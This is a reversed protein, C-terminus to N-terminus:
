SINGSQGFAATMIEHPDAEAPLWSVLRGKHMVGIRDSLALLEPLDSSILLVALGRSALERIIGHIENKAGVDVGQTPEDLILVKPHTVIWRSLSVKQQNGGSLSSALAQAANPRINLADIYEEAQRREIQPQLWGGPFLRQHSAMTVNQEVPLDLIVGHRVRDEPVYAIGQEIAAQPSNLVVEQGDLQMEGEDAPTIGFLTQGLETRGAGVLGALGLIEGSRLEFSIDRIGSASCGLNQVRLVVETPTSKRKPTPSLERGVMLRILSAPTLDQTLSTSVHRGDRLVTVRDALAFVEELRHSVYIIGVGQSRLERVVRFLLHQERQTLSATPEDMIIVQAEAGLACAIEVLQQQPMSLKNATTEPVIGGGVRELLERARQRQAKWSVRQFGSYRETRLAINEAVTLDAFLAPHQYICAMGLDRAKAPTLHPLTQGILEITGSEPRQAGTIMAVLTSKGAGNEGVLGHIEGRSLEFTVNDLARIGAFSKSISALRLLTAPM